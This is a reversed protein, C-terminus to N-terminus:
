ADPLSGLAAFQAAFRALYPAHVSLQEELVALATEIDPVVPDLVLAQHAALRSRTLAAEVVLEQVAIQRSVLCQWPKTKCSLVRRSQCQLAPVIPLV